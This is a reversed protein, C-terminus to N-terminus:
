FEEEDLRVLLKEITQRLEEAVELYEDMPQGFPDHIDYDEDGPFGDVYSAYGKLTHVPKELEPCIAEIEDIHLAEMALILDAEEAM